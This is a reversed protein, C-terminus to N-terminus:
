LELSHTKTTHGLTMVQFLRITMEADLSGFTKMNVIEKLVRISEKEYLPLLYSAAWARVSLNPHVYYVALRGLSKNNKLFIVISKIKDYNRNAIKSKGSRVAEEKEIKMTEM